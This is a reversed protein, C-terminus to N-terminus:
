GNSWQLVFAEPLTRRDRALFIAADGPLAFRAVIKGNDLEVVIPLDHTRDLRLFLQAMTVPQAIRRPEADAAVVRRIERRDADAAAEDRPDHGALRAAEQPTM